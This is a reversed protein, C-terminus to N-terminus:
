KVKDAVFKKLARTLEAIHGPKLGVETATTTTANVLGEATEFGGDVLLKCIHSSLRYQKCFAATTLDPVEGYVQPVLPREFMPRGGVGGNGGRHDSEGGEGGIGGTVRRYLMAEEMTLQTGQGFGGDGGIKLSKGGKGGIGGAIEKRESPNSRNAGQDCKRGRFQAPQFVELFVLSTRVLWVSSTLMTPMLSFSSTNITPSLSVCSTTM